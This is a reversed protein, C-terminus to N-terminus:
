EKLTVREKELHIKRHNDRARNGEGEIQERWQKRNQQYKKPGYCETIQRKGRRKAKEM